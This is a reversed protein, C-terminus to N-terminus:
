QWAILVKGTANALGWSLAGDFADTLTDSVTSGGATTVAQPATMFAEEFGFASSTTPANNNNQQLRYGAVDFDLVPTGFGINVATPNERRELQECRLKSRNPKM